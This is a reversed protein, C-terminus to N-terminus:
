QLSKILGGNPGLGTSEMVEKLTILERVDVAPEYEFLEAAPDLNILRASIKNIRCHTYMTRCYTSKYM